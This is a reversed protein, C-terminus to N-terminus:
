IPSGMRERTKLRTKLPNVRQAQLDLRNDDKKPGVVQPIQIWRFSPPHIYLLFTPDADITGGLRRESSTGLAVLVKRLLHLEPPTLPRTAVPLRKNGVSSPHPLRDISSSDLNRRQPGIWGDAMSRTARASDALSELLDRAHNPFGYLGWIQYERSAGEM